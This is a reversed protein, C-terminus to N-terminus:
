SSAHGTLWTEPSVYRRKRNDRRMGVKLGSRDNKESEAAAKLGVQVREEMLATHVGRVEQLVHRMTEGLTSVGTDLDVSSGSHLLAPPLQRLSQLRASFEMLSDLHSQLTELPAPTDTSTDMPTNM